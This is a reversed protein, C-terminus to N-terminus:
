SMESNSDERGLWATQDRLADPMFPECDMQAKSGGAPPRKRCHSLASQCRQFKNGDLRMNTELPRLRRCAEILPLRLLAADNALYRIERRSQLPNGLRIDDDDAVARRSKDAIEEFQGPPRADSARRTSNNSSHRSLRLSLRRSRTM